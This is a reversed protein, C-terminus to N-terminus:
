YSANNELFRSTLALAFSTFAVCLWKLKFKGSTWFLWKVEQWSWCKGTHKKSSAIILYAYRSIPILGAVLPPQMFRVLIGVIFGNFNTNLGIYLLLTLLIVYSAIKININKFNSLHVLAAMISMYSLIFDVM